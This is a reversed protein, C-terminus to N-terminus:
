EGPLIVLDNEQFENTRVVGGFRYVVTLRKVRGFDPDAKLHNGAVARLREGRIRERLEAAVDMNTNYTWYEAKLIELQSGSAAQRNASEAQGGPAIQLGSERMARVRRTDNRLDDMEKCTQRLAAVEQRLRVLEAAANDAGSSVAPPRDSAPPSADAEIGPLSLRENEAIANAVPALQQQLARNEQALKTCNHREIAAGIALGVVALTCIVNLMRM